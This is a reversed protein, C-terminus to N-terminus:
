EQGCEGTPTPQKNSTTGDVPCSAESWFPEAVARAALLLSIIFIEMLIGMGVIAGTDGLVPSYKVPGYEVVLLYAIRVAYFPLSVLVLLVCRNGAEPLIDRYCVKLWIALCGAFVFTIVFVVSGAITCALNDICRGIM